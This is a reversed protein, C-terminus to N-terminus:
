PKRRSNKALLFQVISNFVFRNEINQNVFFRSYGGDFVIHGHGFKLSTIIPEDAVWAEVHVRCDLPIAVTTQGADMSYKIEAKLFSDKALTAKKDSFNGWVKKGFLFDSIENFEEFLPANDAGCYLGNGKSIHRLLLPIQESKLSSVAGSFIFIAAYKELSDPLLESRSIILSDNYEM